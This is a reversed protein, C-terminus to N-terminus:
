KLGGKSLLHMYAAEWEAIKNERQGLIGPQKSTHIPEQSTEVAHVDENFIRLSSLALSHLMNPNLREAGEVQRTPILLVDIDTRTPSIPRFHVVNFWYGMLSTVQTNPFIYGHFYGDSQWHRKPWWPAWMKENLQTYEPTTQVNFEAHRRSFDAPLDEILPDFQHFKWASSTYYSTDLSSSPHVFEAHIDDFLNHILFKWNCEAHITTKFYFDEFSNGIDEYLPAWEGFYERLSQGGKNLRVFRFRGLADTEFTHLSLCKKEEKSIPYFELNHPIAIPYGTQDYQWGHYPCRLPRNGCAETQIPSFRHSCVNHFARPRGGIHQVVVTEDAVQRAVFDDKKQLDAEFCFFQWTNRFLLQQEAAFIEPSTYHDPPVATRRNQTTEILSM